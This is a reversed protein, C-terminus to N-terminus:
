MGEGEERGSCSAQCQAVRHSTPLQEAQALACDQLCDDYAQFAIIIRTLEKGGLTQMLPHGLSVM